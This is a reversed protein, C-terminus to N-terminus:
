SSGRRSPDTSRARFFQNLFNFQQTLDLMLARPLASQSTTIDVEPHADAFKWLEREAVAKSAAYVWMADDAGHTGDLVQEKTVENWDSSLLNHATTLPNSPYM